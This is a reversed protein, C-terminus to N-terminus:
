IKDGGLFFASHSYELPEHLDYLFGSVHLVSGCSTCKLIPDKDDFVVHRLNGCKCKLHSLIKQGTNSGALNIENIYQIGLKSIQHSNVDRYEKSRARARILTNYKRLVNIDNMFKKDEWLYRRDAKYDYILLQEKYNPFIGQQMLYYCISLIGTYQMFRLQEESSYLSYIFLIKKQDEDLNVDLEAISNAM